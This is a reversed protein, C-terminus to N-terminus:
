RKGMQSGVSRGDEDESSDSGCGFGYLNFLVTCLIAEECLCSNCLEFCLFSNLAVLKDPFTASEVSRTLFEV